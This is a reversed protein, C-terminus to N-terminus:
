EWDDTKIQDTRMGKKVLFNKFSKIMAPPGSIFFSTGKDSNSFIKEIDLIGKKDQYVNNVELSSNITCATKIQDTYLNMEESRFGAYLVPKEYNSFYASTFLSLYPTIGTGGSIFVTNIKVHDQSFLDGYPLKLTIEKGPLLEKQMRITYQGKVAYTIRILDQGPSSQISFCRSEPWQGAPDYEDLALHLFQGPEYKFPKGLSELDVTYVGDIRNYIAVVKATYKKVITM